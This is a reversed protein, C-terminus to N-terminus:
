PDRNFYHVTVFDGDESLSDEGQPYLIALLEKVGRVQKEYYDIRARITWYGGFKRPQSLDLDTVIEPANKFLNTM